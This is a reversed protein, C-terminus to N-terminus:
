EGLLIEVIHPLGSQAELIKQRMSDLTEEKNDLTIFTNFDIGFGKEKWFDKNCGEYDALEEEFILPTATILSDSLTGGGPKSLVAADRKMLMRLPNMDPALESFTGWEGDVYKMLRPYQTNGEGPKWEPDLLYYDNIKDSEDVEEPYYIVIDLKYGSENLLKEKSSYEGLGWGGGHVLIRKEKSRSKEEPKINEESNSKEKSRRKEESKYKEEPKNKEKLRGKEEPEINEEPEIKEESKSKEELRNKGQVNKESEGAGTDNLDPAELLSVVEDQDYNYLWLEKIDTREENKWSLSYGADMHIAYVRDKYYPNEDIVENLISLWFGSFTIVKDYCKELMDKKFKAVKEPNVASKNRTPMRYSLKALRYNQHFSKKTEDIVSERGIYMAELCLMDVDYGLKELQNKLTVAPM